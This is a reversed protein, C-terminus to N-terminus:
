ISPRRPTMLSQNCFPDARDEQDTINEATEPLPENGPVQFTKKSPKKSVFFGNKEKKDKKKKEDPSAPSTDEPELLPEELNGEPLTGSSSRKTGKKEEAPGLLPVYCLTRFKSRNTLHEHEVRLLLWQSRRYLELFAVVFVVINDIIPNLTITSGPLMNLAWTMRLMVNLLSILIYFFPPYMRRTRQFRETSPFLGWDQTTDWLTFFLTSGVYSFAWVLAAVYLSFGSYANVVVVLLGSAYKCANGLHIQRSDREETRYWRKLCQMFRFYYPLALVIRQATDSLPKGKYPYEPLLFEPVFRMGVWALATYLYFFTYVLDPIPHTFSTLMDGMVNTAFTVESFPATIVAGMARLVAGRYKRRFLKSPLLLVGIEAVAMIAPYFTYGKPHDLLLGFRADALFVIVVFMWIGQLLFALMLLATSDICCKPDIDLLFVYNVKYSEFVSVVWGLLLFLTNLLFFFRIVPVTQLMQEFSYLPNTPPIWILIIINLLSAVLFGLLFFLLRGQGTEGDTQITPLGVDGGAIRKYVAQTRQDIEALGYEKQHYFRAVRPGGQIQLGGKEGM